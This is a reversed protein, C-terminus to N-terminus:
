NFASGNLISDIIIGNLPPLNFDNLGILTDNSNGRISKLMDEVIEDNQELQDKVNIGLTRGTSISEQTEVFTDDSLLESAKLVQILLDFARAYLQNRHEQNRLILAGKKLYDLDSEYLEGNIRSECCSLVLIITASFVSWDTMCDNWQYAIKRDLYVNAFTTIVSRAANACIMLSKLQFKSSSHDPRPLFPKYMFIQINNFLVRLNSKLQFITDDSDNETNRISFTPHVEKLWQHLKANLSAIDNVTVILDEGRNSKRFKYLQQIVEGHIKCLKLYEKIYVLNIDNDPCENPSIASPYQLYMDDDKMLTPRGFCATHARDLIYLMWTARKGLEKEIPNEHESLWSLHLGRNQVLLLTLGHVMWTNKSQAGKQIYVQLLILTQIDKEYFSFGALFRLHEKGPVLVRTDDSFMAGLACVLSLLRSFGEELRRFPISNKFHTEDLLPLTRNVQFSKQKARRDLRRGLVRTEERKVIDPPDLNTYLFVREFLGRMSAKGYYRKGSMDGPIYLGDIDKAVQDDQLDEWDNSPITEIPSYYQVNSSTSPTNNNTINRLQALEQELKNVYNINYYKKPETSEYTCEIHKCISCKDPYIGDCKVKKRRCGDCARTKMKSAKPM